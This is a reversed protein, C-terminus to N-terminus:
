PVPAPVSGCPCPTPRFPRRAQARLFVRPPRGRRRPRMVRRSSRWIRSSVDALGTGFSRPQRRGARQSADVRCAVASAPRRRDARLAVAPRVGIARGSRVCQAVGLARPDDRHGILRAKGVGRRRADDRRQGILADVDRAFGAKMAHRTRMALHVTVTTDGAGPIEARMHSHHTGNRNSPPRPSPRRSASFLVAVLPAIDPDANPILAPVPRHRLPRRDHRFTKNIARLYRHQTGNLVSGAPDPNEVSFQGM